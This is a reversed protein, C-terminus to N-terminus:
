PHQKTADLSELILHIATHISDLEKRALEGMMLESDMPLVIVACNTMEGLGKVVGPNINVGRPQKLVILKPEEFILNGQADVLNKRGNTM